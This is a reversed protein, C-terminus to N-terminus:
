SEIPLQIEPDPPNPDISLLQFLHLLLEMQSGFRLIEGTQADELTARWSVGDKRRQLRLLFAHYDGNM